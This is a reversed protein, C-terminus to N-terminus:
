SLSRALCPPLPADGLSHYQTIFAPSFVPSNEWTRVVLSLVFPVICPLTCFFFSLVWIHAVFYLSLLRLNIVLYRLYCLHLEFTVQVRLFCILNHSISGRVPRALLSWTQHCCLDPGASVLNASASVLFLPHPVSFARMEGMDTLLVPCSLLPVCM